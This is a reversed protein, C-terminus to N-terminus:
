SRNESDIGDVSGAMHRRKATPHDGSAMAIMPHHDSIADRTPVNDCLRHTKRMDPKSIKM